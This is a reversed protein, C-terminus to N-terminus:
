ETSGNAWDLFLTLAEELNGAGCKIDFIGEDKKALIWDKETRTLNVASFSAEELNTGDVGIKIWWGPNDLSEIVIGDGHEWDGDCQAQFWIVLRHITEM